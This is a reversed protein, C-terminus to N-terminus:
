RPGPRDLNWHRVVSATWREHGPVLAFRTITPQRGVHDTYLLDIFIPEREGLLRAAVEHLEDAPDRLAGQWLGIGAAPIYLDRSLERFEEVPAHDVERGLRRPSVHWSQLVGIGAGVNRLSMAMYIVDDDTELVAESGGVRLSHGDAFGIKEVPDDLKSQILVPRLQQELAMKAVKAARNSSRVAAFTAM